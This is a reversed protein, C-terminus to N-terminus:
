FNVLKSMADEFVVKMETTKEKDFKMTITMTDELTVVGIVRKANAVLPPIFVLESLTYNGYASPINVKTLNTVSIGKAEGDYGFMHSMKKALNNNYQDFAAFYAADILTPSLEGLFKLLFYVAQENNLKTYILKHVTRANEWFNLDPNLSAQISIGSAYNGLHEDEAERINVAIGAHKEKSALLFATIIASNVMVQQAKCKNMLRKLASGKIETQLLHTHRTEWFQNFMHLYEQYSFIKGRKKWSGNAFKVMLKIIPNLKIEKPLDEVGLTKVPLTEFAIEPDGLAKMINRIYLVLSKGDGILHHAIITLRTGEVKQAISYRILEGEEFAFPMREQHLAENETINIIPEKIPIYFVEGKENAQIKCNLIDYATTARKIAEKLQEFSVAPKILVRMTVYISPSYYHTRETKVMAHM